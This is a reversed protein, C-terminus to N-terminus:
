VREEQLVVDHVVRAQSREAVDLQSLEILQGDAERGGILGGVRRDRVRERERRQQAERPALCGRVLLAVM